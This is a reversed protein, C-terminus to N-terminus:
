EFLLAGDLGYGLKQRRDGCLYIEDRISERERERMNNFGYRIVWIM